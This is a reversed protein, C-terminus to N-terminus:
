LMSVMGEFNRLHTVKAVAGDFGKFSDDISSVPRAGSFDILHQPEEVGMRKKSLLKKEHVSNTDHRCNVFGTVGAHATITTGLEDTVVGVLVGPVKAM